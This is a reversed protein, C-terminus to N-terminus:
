RSSEPKARTRKPAIWFVLAGTFVLASGMSAPLTWGLVRPSLATDTFKYEPVNLKPIVFMAIYHEPTRQKLPPYQILKKAAAIRRADGEEGAAERQLRAEAGYSRPWRHTTKEVTGDPKLDYLDFVWDIRRVEGWSEPDFGEPTRRVAIVLRESGPKRRREGSDDRVVEYVALVKLWEDYAALNPLNSAPPRKVPILTPTGAYDLRVASQGNDLTTDTLLGDPFGEVRIARSVISDAHFTLFKAEANFEGIRRAMPLTSCVFVGAAGLTLLMATLRAREM